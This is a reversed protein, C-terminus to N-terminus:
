AVLTVFCMTGSNISITSWKLTKCWSPEFMIVAGWFWLKLSLLIHVARWSSNASSFTNQPLTWIVASSGDACISALCNDTLRPGPWLWGLRHTVSSLRHRVNWSTSSVSCGGRLMHTDLRICTLLPLPCIYCLCNLQLIPSEINLHTVVTVLFCIYLYVSQIIEVCPWTLNCTFKFRSKWNIAYAATPIKNVIM